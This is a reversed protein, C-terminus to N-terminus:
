DDAAKKRRSKAATQKEPEKGPEKEPEKQTSLRRYESATLHEGCLKCTVGNKRGVWVHSCSM